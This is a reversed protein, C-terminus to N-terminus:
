AALSRGRGRRGHRAHRARGDRQGHPRRKGALPPLPRLHGGPGRLGGCPRHTTPRECVAMRGSRPDQPSLARDDHRNMMRADDAAEQAGATRRRALWAGLLLLVAAAMTMPVAVSDESRDDGSRDADPRAAAATFRDFIARELPRSEVVVVEASRGPPSVTRSEPEPLATREPAPTAVPSSSPIPAVRTSTAESRPSTQVTIPDAVRTRLSAETRAPRPQGSAREAAAPRARPRAARRDPTTDSWPEAPPEQLAAQATAEAEAAEPLPAAPLPAAASPPEVQAPPAPSPTPIPAPASAPIPAAVVPRAPLLGLPDVYGDPDAAVRVGLHVHPVTTVADASEGVAGVVAGEAVVGGRVVSTSGLQLLTVAFGDSTQITIALGGRPISGVFSVMGAAPALVSSGREAGIDVGRHQGGAYSDPGLSFPRLVPGAVPWTWANAAPAAALAALLVLVSFIRRM